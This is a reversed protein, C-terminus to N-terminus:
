SSAAAWQRRVRWTFGSAYSAGGMNDSTYSVQGAGSISFVVGHGGTYNFDTVSWAATLQDYELVLIGTAFYSTTTTRRKITYDIIVTKYSALAFVMGTVTAGSTENNNISAVNDTTLQDNNLASAIDAMTFKDLDTGGSNYGILSGATPEPLTPSTQNSTKPYSPSRDLKESVEEIMAVVRDLALEISTLPVAQSDTMDLIQTKPVVRIILVQYGTAPATNFVVTTNFPTTPPSSGTLTYDQLAGVVMLTETAPTVLTNRKYVKTESSDDVMVTFPIAFNTTVGDGSYLAKVTTNSFSM